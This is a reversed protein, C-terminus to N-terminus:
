REKSEAFRRGLVYMDAQTRLSNSNNTPSGNFAQEEIQRALADVKDMVSGAKGVSAAGSAAVESDDAFGLDRATRPRELPLGVNAADFPKLKKEPHLETVEGPRNALTGDSSSKLKDKLQDYMMDALGIGGNDTMKDAFEKDFMSLYQKEMKGHMMENKPVTNQMEKWLKSIFVSEFGKCAERLQQEETPGGSLSRKLSRMKSRFEAMEKASTAQEVGMGTFESTM